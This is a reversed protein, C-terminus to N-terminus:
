QEQPKCKKAQAKGPEAQLALHPGAHYLRLIRWRRMRLRAPESVQVREPCVVYSMPHYFDSARIVYM